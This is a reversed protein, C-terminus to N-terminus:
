DGRLITEEPTIVADMRLDHAERPVHELLAADHCVGARVAATEQLFRDYYGGGQGLRYCARDFAVGPVLVLGIEEPPVIESDEAPEPIGYAGPTLDSLANVKRATLTGNAECRPLALRKGSALIHRTVPALDLEGRCAIYAMVCTANRYPAYATLRGFVAESAARQAEPSLGRRLARMRSRLTKKDTM